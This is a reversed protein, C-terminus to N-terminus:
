YENKITKKCYICEPYTFWGGSKDSVITKHYGLRCILKRTKKVLIEIMRQETM